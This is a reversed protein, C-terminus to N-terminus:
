WVRKQAIDEAVRQVFDAKSLALQEEQRRVRVTFDEGSLEKEGVVLVYPVKAQAAARIKKGVTEDASDVSVRMGAARLEAALEKAGDVHKDTSVPLISVQVPALWVPWYGAYHETLFALFREHVSLPARHIVFVENNKEGSDDTYEFGFREKALFDLQITSMSEERGLVSTFQVDVKPGYFAAEDEVEVFPVDMEVLVERIIQESHAWNEPQDIYKDTHAPDWKSLRFWYTDFGFVKFYMMTMELVAKFEDKIQDKKCYIHSDNMALGRVRLLGALTGSLENRYVMGYEAIRMPMDKYSKPGHLFIQHHHPCNMARLYYTGDDMEMAPYMDDKYYPLHGSRLFLEEKAIHPTVVRVYGAASETDKAFQEIQERIITGNPLWMALGKGVTEDIFFLEQEKGIKRHDRKKAEELLHLHEKLAKKDAFAVGYIRTLMKNKEDGRWYAGAVSMLKFSDYRIKNSNEVHPGECMNHFSGSDYFSIEKEGKKALEEILETKYVDNKYFALAEEVSSNSQVFAIKEKVIEKMRAEIKPLMDESLPEPLDYDQYFGNEIVPGVGLGANPYLELVAMSM